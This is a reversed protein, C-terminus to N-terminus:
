LPGYLIASNLKNETSLFFETHYNVFEDKSVKGDEDSDMAAFSNQAHEPPKGLATNHVKWEKVSIYGDENADLCAFMSESLDMNKRQAMMAHWHEEFEEYSLKLISNVLDLKELFSFM